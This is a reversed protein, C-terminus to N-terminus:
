RCRFFFLVNHQGFRLRAENLLNRRNASENYTACQNHILTAKPYRQVIERTADTSNQDSILIHDAWLSTAALFTDLIWSENKVPTLVVLKPAQLTEKVIM